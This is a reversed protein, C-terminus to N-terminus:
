KILLQAYLCMGLWSIEGCQHVCGQRDDYIPSVSKLIYINGQSMSDENITQVLKIWIVNRYSRLKVSINSCHSSMFVSCMWNFDATICWVSLYPACLGWLPFVSKDSNVGGWWGVEPGLITHSAHQSRWLSKMVSQPTASQSSVNKEWAKCTSTIILLRCHWRHTILRSESFKCRM